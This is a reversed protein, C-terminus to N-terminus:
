NDEYTVVELREVRTSGVNTQVDNFGLFDEVNVLIKNPVLVTFTGCKYDTLQQHNEDFTKILIAKNNGPDFHSTIEIKAAAELDIVHNGSSPANGDGIISSYTKGDDNYNNYIMQLSRIRGNAANVNDCNILIRAIALKKPICRSLNNPPQGFSSGYFNETERFNKTVCNRIRPKKSQDDLAKLIFKSASNYNRGPYVYDLPTTPDNGYSSYVFKQDGCSYDSTVVTTINAISFLSGLKSLESTMMFRNIRISGMGNNATVVEVALYKKGYYTTIEFVMKKITRGPTSPDPNSEFYVYRVQTYNNKIHLADEIYKHANSVMLIPSGVGPIEGCGGGTLFTNGKGTYDAKTTSIYLTSTALLLLLIKQM